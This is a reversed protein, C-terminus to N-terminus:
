FMTDQMRESQILDISALLNELEQHSALADERLADLTANDFTKLTEVQRQSHKTDFDQEQNSQLKEM